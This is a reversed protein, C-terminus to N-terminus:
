RSFDKRAAIAAFVVATVTFAVMHFFVGGARFAIVAAWFVLTGAVFVGAAARARGPVEQRDLAYWGLMGGAVAASVGQAVLFLGALFILPGPGSLDDAKVFVAVGYLIGLVASVAGLFLALFGATVGSM